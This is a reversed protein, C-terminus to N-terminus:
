TFTNKSGKKGYDDDDDNEMKVLLAFSKYYVFNPHHPKQNSKTHPQLHYDQSSHFTPWYYM